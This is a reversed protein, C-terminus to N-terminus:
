RRRDRRLLAALAPDPYVAYAAALFASPDPPTVGMIGTDPNEGPRATPGFVSPLPPAASAPSSGAAGGSGGAALPAAAQLNELQQREGYNGGSAVRIPQGSDTRRSMAGPGSVAAPRSPKQYGGRKRAM